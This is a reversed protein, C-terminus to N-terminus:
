FSSHRLSGPHAPAPGLLRAPLGSPSAVGRQTWISLGMGGRVSDSPLSTARPGGDPSPRSIHPWLLPLSMRLLDELSPLSPPWVCWLQAGTKPEGRVRVLVLLIDESVM